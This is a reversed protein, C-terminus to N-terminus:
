QNYGESQQAKESQHSLSPARQLCPCYGKVCLLTSNERSKRVPFIGTCFPNKERLDLTDGKLRPLYPKHRLFFGVKPLTM